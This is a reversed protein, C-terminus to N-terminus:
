QLLYTLSKFFIQFFKEDKKRKELLASDAGKCYLIVKGDENEIIASMMKRCITHTFPINLVIM